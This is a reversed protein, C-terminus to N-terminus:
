RVQEDCRDLRVLCEQSTCGIQYRRVGCEVGGFVLSCHLRLTDFADANRIARGFAGFAVALLFLAPEAVALLPAGSALSADAHDFPAIAEVAAAVLAVDSHVTPDPEADDGVFNDIDTAGHVLLCGKLDSRSVLAYIKSM